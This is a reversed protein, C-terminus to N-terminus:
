LVNQKEVITINAYLRQELIPISFTDSGPTPIRLPASLLLLVFDTEGGSM